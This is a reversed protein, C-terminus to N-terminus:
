ELVFLADRCMKYIICDSTEKESEQRGPGSDDWAETTVLRGVGHIHSSVSRYSLNM